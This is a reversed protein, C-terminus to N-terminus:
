EKDNAIVEPGRGKRVQAVGQDLVQCFNPGGDRFWLAELVRANLVVEIEAEGGEGMLDELRIFEGDLHCLEARAEGSTV